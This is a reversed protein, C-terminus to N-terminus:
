VVLADPEPLDPALGRVEDYKGVWEGLGPCVPDILGRQRFREAEHTRVAVLYPQLRRMLARAEPAGERLRDLAARVRSREEPSGYGTVVVAESEDEIMQFRRAVEPYELRARLQQIGRADLHVDQFLRQFYGRAAAPDQPDLTGYALLAGTIDAGTRYPGPAMGGERPRFVVVRGHPLRGERNCRGAAQIIGDLPGLARLVLPFDVDVGAEVVQTSVLRCREGSQLRRRVEQIVSRRHAGCLLTSLHLAEPDGLAELLMVADRKTNVIALASPEKRMLDAVEPWTLAPDVQWAYNVRRLAQFYRGPEPVIETAHLDTFGPITDFAPQTATSIVVTAGYHQCLQKLVDLIPRLLIPPLAQAEDLIIVSRALSHLKRARSTSNAFLSEFLQVTTTVVVPADWNEAALRSWVQAPHSDDEGETLATVGSHHELVIPRSDDGVGFISRYVDATQETISIFPVAVIVRRLGHRLAHRLAFAMASRTKGGGTPVTLRFLGPPEEAATVCARYIAQRAEWVIGAKGSTGVPLRGLAQQDRVLREWLDALGVDTSRQQAVQPQFHRETDLFDADVLASFLMRLYLEAAQPDRAIRDPLALPSAPELGPLGSQALTIAEQVAPDGALQGLWSRLETPTRLGGHHGHILLALPPLHETALRAGAAKHDPGSGRARPNRECEVLYDQFRPNFKGIDHWLGAWHALDGAGFAAAFEAALNAVGRLHAVLDQRDGRDNRSHAYPM